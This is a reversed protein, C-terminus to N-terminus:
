DDNLALGLGVRLEYRYATPGWEFWGQWFRFRAQFLQNLEPGLPLARRARGQRLRLSVIAVLEPSDKDDPLASSWYTSLQLKDGSVIKYTVESTTGNMTAAYLNGAADRWTPARPAYSNVWYWRGRHCALYSFLREPNRQITSGQLLSDATQAQRQRPVDPPAVLTSDSRYGVSVLLTDATCNTVYLAIADMPPHRVPTCALLGVSSAVLLGTLLRKHVRIFTM